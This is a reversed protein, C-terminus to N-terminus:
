TPANTKVTVVDVTGDINGEELVIPIILKKDRFSGEPSSTFRMPRTWKRKILKMSRTGKRKILMVLMTGKRQIRELRVVDTYKKTFNFKNTVDEALKKRTVM